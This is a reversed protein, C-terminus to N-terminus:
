PSAAPWPEADAKPKKRKRKSKNLLSYPSREEDAQRPMNQSSSDPQLEPDSQFAPEHLTTQQVEDLIEPSSPLPLERETVTVEHTDVDQCLHPLPEGDTPQATTPQPTSSSTEYVDVQSTSPQHLQESPSTLDPSDHSTKSKSKRKDKGSRSQTPKPDPEPTVLPGQQQQDAAPATAMPEPEAGSAGSTVPETTTETTEPPATVGFAASVNDGQREGPAEETITQSIVPEAETEQQSNRKKKKNKKSQKSSVSVEIEAAAASPNLAPVRPRPNRLSSRLLIAAKRPPVTPVESISDKSDKAKKDDEGRAKASGLHEELPEAFTVSQRKKKKDKKTQATVLPDDTEQTLLHSELPSTPQDVAAFSVSKVKINETETSSPSAEPTTEAETEISVEPQQQTPPKPTASQLEEPEETLTAPLVTEPTSIQEPAATELSQSGRKKKKNKKAKKGSSAPEPAEETQPTAVEQFTSPEDVAPSATEEPIQAPEAATQEPQSSLAPTFDKAKTELKPEEPIQVPEDVAQESQPEVAPTSEELNIKLKPEEPIESASQEPAAEAPLESVDQSGSKKKKKSKKSSPAPESTVEVQPAEVPASEVVEPAPSEPLSESVATEPTPEPATLEVAPTEPQSELGATESTPEPVALEVAPAEEAKAAAQKKKKKAKKKKGSSETSAEEVAAWNTMASPESAVAPEPTPQPEPAADQQSAKDVVPPEAPQPPPPATEQVSEQPTPQVVKPTDKRQQKKGKKAMDYTPDDGADATVPTDVPPEQPTDPTTSAQSQDPSRATNKDPQEGAERDRSQGRSDVVAVLRAADSPMTLGVPDLTPFDPTLPARENPLWVATDPANSATDGVSKDSAPPEHVGAAHGVNPIKGISEGLVPPQLPPKPLELPDVVSRQQQEATESSIADGAGQMSLANLSPDSRPHASVSSNDTQPLEAPTPTQKGIGFFSGMGGTISPLMAFSSGWRGKTPKAPEAPTEAQQRVRMPGQEKPSAETVAPLAPQSGPNREAAPKAPTKLELEGGRPLVTESASLSSTGVDQFSSQEIVGKNAPDSVVSVSGPGTSVEAAFSTPPQRDAERKLDDIIKKIKKGRIKKGPLFTESPQLQEVVPDTSRRHLPTQPEPDIWSVEKKSGKKTDEAKSATRLLQPTEIDRRGEVPVSSQKASEQGEILPAEEPISTERMQPFSRSEPQTQAESEWSYGAKKKRNRPPSPAAPPVAWDNAQAQSKQARKGLLYSLTGPRPPSDDPKGSDHQSEYFTSGSLYTPAESAAITSADDNFSYVSESRASPPAHM